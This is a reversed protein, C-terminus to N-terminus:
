KKVRYEGKNAKRFRIETGKYSRVYNERHKWAILASSILVVAVAALDHHLLYLMVPVSIILTVTGLVIYDTVLTVFALLVLAVLGIGIHLGLAM